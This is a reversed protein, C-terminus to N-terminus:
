KLTHFRNITKDGREKAKEQAIIDDHLRSLVSYKLYKRWRDRLETEDKAFPM